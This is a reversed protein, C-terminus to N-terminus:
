KKNSNFKLTFVHLKNKFDYVLEMRSVKVIQQAISLGLGMSDNGETGKSFRKFIESPNLPDGESSNSIFLAEHSLAIIIEGGIITHRVANQMLNNVLTECLDININLKVDNAMEQHISIKKMLIYEDFLLLSEQIIVNLQVNEDPIYQNNEIKSLLLLSKNLRSIRNIMDGLVKINNLEEEGLKDSQFLLEIKSQMIALPTQMEHSANESFQKQSKFDTALKGTLSEVSGNLQKFEVINTRPFLPEAEDTPNFKKLIELTQFFPKWLNKSIYYNITFFASASLIMIALFGIFLGKFLEEYELSSRLIEISYAHNNLIITSHLLRFIAMEKENDDFIAKDSFVNKEEVPMSISTITAEGSAVTMKISVTDRNLICKEIQALRIRLLEDNSYRVESTIIVYIIIGAIFLIPISGIFYYLSTKTQLKM